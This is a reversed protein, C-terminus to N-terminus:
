DAFSARAARYPTTPQPSQKPRTQKRTAVKGRPLVAILGGAAIAYVPGIMANMLCDVTFILLFITLGITPAMAQKPWVAGPYRLLLVIPPILLVAWMSALGVAGFQGRAIIWMGDPTGLTRGVDNTAHFRQWGSWGFWPREAAKKNFIDENRMRGSLSGARQEGFLDEAVSVVEDGTWVNVSRTVIYLPSIVLLVIVGVRLNLYFISAMVALAMALLAMAGASKCLVTTVVMLLVWVVAPVGWLVKMRGTLWLWFGISTAGSMFLGVMLGHQMFVTPRFGGMRLTQVFSHAHAGYVLLHLRPAFRVEILCLPMYVLGAVFVGRALEHLGDFDHFYCRGMFYPVGWTMVQTVVMTMGGYASRSVSGGVDNTIASFVPCILWILMPLDYVSFRFRKFVHPAFIVTGLLASLAAAAFKDYEPLGEIAFPSFQPLFMWGGLYTALVARRPPLVAFLVLAILPWGLLAISVTASM